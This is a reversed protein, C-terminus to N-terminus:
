ASRAPERLATDLFAALAAATDAANSHVFSHDGSIRRCTVGPRRRLARLEGPWFSLTFTPRLLLTPARLREVLATQDEALAALIARFGHESLRPAWSGDPQRVHKARWVRQDAAEGRRLYVREVCAATLAAEDAHVRREPAFAAEILDPMRRLLPNFGAPLVPDALALARVREPAATAVQFAVRGGWSHGALAAGAPAVQALAAVVDGAAAALTWAAPDTPDGPPGSSEGHGRLSLSWVVRPGALAGAVRAWTWASDNLGHLCVLPPAGEDGPWRLAALTVAGLELRREEVPPGDPVARGFGGRFVRAGIGATVALFRESARGRSRRPPEPPNQPQEHTTRTM